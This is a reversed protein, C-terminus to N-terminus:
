SVNGFLFLVVSIGHFHRDIGDVQYANNL